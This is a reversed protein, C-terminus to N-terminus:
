SPGPGVSREADRLRVVLDELAAIETAGRAELDLARGDAADEEYGRAHVTWARDPAAGITPRTVGIDWPLAERVDAWASRLDGHVRVARDVLPILFVVVHDGVRYQRFHERWPGHIGSKSTRGLRYVILWEDTGRFRRPSAAILLLAIAMGALLFLLSDM